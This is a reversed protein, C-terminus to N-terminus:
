NLINSIFSNNTLIYGNTSQDIYDNKNKNMMWSILQM